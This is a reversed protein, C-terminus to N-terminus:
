LYVYAGDRKFRMSGEVGPWEEINDSVVLNSSESNGSAIEEM